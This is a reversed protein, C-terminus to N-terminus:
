GTPPFYSLPHPCQSISSSVRVVGPVEAVLLYTFSILAMGGNRRREDHQPFHDPILHAVEVADKKAKRRKTRDKKGVRKESNKHRKRPTSTTADRRFRGFSAENALMVDEDDNLVVDEDDDNDDEEEEFDGYLLSAYEKQEAILSDKLTQFEAKMETLERLESDVLLKQYSMFFISASICGVITIFCTIIVIRDRTRSVSHSSGCGELREFPIDSARKNSDM